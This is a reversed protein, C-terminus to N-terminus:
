AARPYGFRDLFPPLVATLSEQLPAPLLTWKGSVTDGIHTSHIQTLRDVQRGAVRGRVIRHCRRCWMAGGRPFARM